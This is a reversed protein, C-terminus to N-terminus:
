ILSGAHLPSTLHLTRTNRAPELTLLRLRFLNHVADAVTYALAASAPLANRMARAARCPSAPNMIPALTKQAVAM